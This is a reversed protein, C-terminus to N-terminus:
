KRKTRYPQRYISQITNSSKRKELQFYITENVPTGNTAYSWLHFKNKNNTTTFTISTNGVGIYKTEKSDGNLDLATLYSRPSKISFTYTGASLYFDTPSTFYFYSSSPTGISTISGDANHTNVVNNSNIVNASTIINKGGCTQEIVIVM